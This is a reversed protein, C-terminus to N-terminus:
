SHYYPARVILNSGGDGDFDEMTAFTFHAYGGLDYGNAMIVNGDKFHHGGQYQQDSGFFISITDPILGSPTYNAVLDGYTDGNLDHFYLHDNTGNSFLYSLTETSDSGYFYADEESLVV